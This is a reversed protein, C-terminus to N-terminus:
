VAATVEVGGGFFLLPRSPTSLNCDGIACVVAQCRERGQLGTWNAVTQGAPPRTINDPHRPPPRTKSLSDAAQLALQRTLARRPPHAPAPSPPRPGGDGGVRM